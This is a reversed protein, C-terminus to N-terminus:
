KISQCTVQVTLNSGNLDTAGRATYGNGDRKIDVLQLTGENGTIDTGGWFAGGSVATGQDCQKTASLVDFNGNGTIQGPDNTSATVTTTTVTPPAPPHAKHKKKGIAIGGFTAILAIMAIAIAALTLVPPRNSSLKKM